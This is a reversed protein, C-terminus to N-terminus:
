KDKFYGLWIETIREAVRRLRYSIVGEAVPIEPGPPAVAAGMRPYVYLGRDARRYQRRFAPYREAAVNRGTVPLVYHYVVRVSVHRHVSVKRCPADNRGLLDALVLKYTEDAFCSIRLVPLDLRVQMEFYFFLALRHIRALKQFLGSKKRYLSAYVATRFDPEPKPDRPIFFLLYFILAAMNNDKNNHRDMTNSPHPSVIDPIPFSVFLIPCPMLVKKKLCYRGPCIM